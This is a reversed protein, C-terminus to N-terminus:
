DKMYWKSFSVATSETRAGPTGCRRDCVQFLPNKLAIKDDFCRLNSHSRLEWGKWIGTTKQLEARGHGTMRSM